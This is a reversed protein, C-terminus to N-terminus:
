KYRVAKSGMSPMPQAKAATPKPMAPKMPQGTATDQGGARTLKPSYAGGTGKGPSPPAKMSRGKLGPSPPAAGGKYKLDFPGALKQLEDMFGRAMIRGAADEEALKQFEVAAEKELASDHASIQDHIDVLSM